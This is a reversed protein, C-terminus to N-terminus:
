NVLHRDAPLDLDWCAVLAARVSHQTLHENTHDETARHGVPSRHAVSLESRIGVWIKRISWDYITCNKDESEVDQQGWDGPKQM